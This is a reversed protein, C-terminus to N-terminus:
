SAIASRPSRGTIESGMRIDRLEDERLHLGGRTTLNVLTVIPFRPRLEGMHLIIKDVRSM